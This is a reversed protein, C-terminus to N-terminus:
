GGKRRHRLFRSLGTAFRVDIGLDIEICEMMTFKPGLVTLFLLRSRREIGGEELELGTFFFSSEDGCAGYCICILLKRGLSRSTTSGALSDLLLM